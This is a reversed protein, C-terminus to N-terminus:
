ATQEVVPWTSNRKVYDIEKEKKGKETKQTRIIHTIYVPTQKLEQKTM